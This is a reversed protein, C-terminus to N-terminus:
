AAMQDAEDGQQRALEIIKPADQPDIGLSQWDEPAINPHANPSAFFTPILREALNVMKVLPQGIAARSDHPQHHYRLVAIIPGQLGWNQGLAAGLECHNMELMASELEEVPRGPEAAMRTHFGDSLDPDLYDLVLFGIDHLLGSLFIDEEKPCIDAPMYQSIAHMWMTVALCHRWIHHVNLLRPTARSMSSMMAFSLATMKVRRIGILAAADSVSAIKKTAGFLPSNALGIVKASIPPDEGILKLLKQEGEYSVMKLSLIDRAIKPIPPLAHLRDLAQRLSETM